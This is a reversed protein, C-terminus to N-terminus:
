MFRGSGSKCWGCFLMRFSDDRAVRVGFELFLLSTRGGGFCLWDCEVGRVGVRLKCGFSVLLAEVKCGVMGGTFSFGLGCARFNRFGLM